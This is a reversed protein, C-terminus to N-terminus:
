KLLRVRIFLITYMHFSKFIGLPYDSVSLRLLVSLVIALLFRVFSCAIIWLVGGLNLLMFGVLSLYEPLTLLDQEM